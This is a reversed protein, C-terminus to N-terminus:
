RLCVVDRGAAYLQVPQSLGGFMPPALPRDRSPLASSLAVSTRSEVCTKMARGAMVLFPASNTPRRLYCADRPHPGNGLRDAGTRCCHGQGSPHPAPRPVTPRTEGRTSSVLLRIALTRSLPSLYLYGPRPRLPPCYRPAHSRRTPPSADGSHESLLSIPTCTILPHPTSTPSITTPPLRNSSEEGDCTSATTLTM